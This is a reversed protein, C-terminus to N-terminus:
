CRRNDALTAVVITHDFGHGSIPTTERVAPLGAAAVLERLLADM